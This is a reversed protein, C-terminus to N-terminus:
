NSSIFFIKITKDIFCSCVRPHSFLLRKPHKQLGFICHTRPRWVQLLLSDCQAPQLTYAVCGATAQLMKHSGKWTEVWPQSFDINSLKTRQLIDLHFFFHWLDLLSWVMHKEIFPFPAFYFMFCYHIYRKVQALM